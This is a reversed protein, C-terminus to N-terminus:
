GNPGAGHKKLIKKIDSVDKISLIEEMSFKIDFAKEIETILLIGGFSDWEKATKPSTKDSIRNPRIKLVGSIVKALKSM